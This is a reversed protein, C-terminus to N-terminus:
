HQQEPALGGGNTMLSQTIESLNGYAAALSRAAASELAPEAAAAAAAGAAASKAGKATASSKSKTDKDTVASAPTAAAEAEKSAALQVIEDPEICLTSVDLVPFAFPNFASSPPVWRVRETGVPASACFCSCTSFLHSCLAYFTLAQASLQFQLVDIHQQGHYPSV